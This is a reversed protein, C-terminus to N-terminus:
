VNPYDSYCRLNQDYFLIIFIKLPQSNFISVETFSIFLKADYPKGLSALCNDWSLINM